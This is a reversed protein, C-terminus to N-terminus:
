TSPGWTGGLSIGPNGQADRPKGPSGLHVFVISMPHFPIIHSQRLHPTGHSLGFYDLFLSEWPTASSIGAINPRERNESGNRKNFGDAMAKPSLNKLQNGTHNWSTGIFYKFYWDFFRKPPGPHNCVHAFLAVASTQFPPRLPNWGWRLSGHQQTMTTALGAVLQSTIIFGM